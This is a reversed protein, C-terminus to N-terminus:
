PIHRIRRFWSGHGPIKEIRIWQSRNLIGEESPPWEPPNRVNTLFFTSSLSNKGFFEAYYLM